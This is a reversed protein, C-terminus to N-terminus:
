GHIELMRSVLQAISAVSRFNAVNLDEDAVAVSFEREIAEVLRLAFLSSLLGMAFIDDDDRLDPRASLAVLRARIRRRQETSDMM